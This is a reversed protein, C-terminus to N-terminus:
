CARQFARAIAKISSDNEFSAALDFDRAFGFVIQAGGDDLDIASRIAGDLVEVGVRGLQLGHEIAGISLACPKDVFEGIQLPLGIFGPRGLPDVIRRQGLGTL